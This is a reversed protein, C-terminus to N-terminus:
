KPPLSAAVEVGQSLWGALEEESAYGEPQVSVWGRMPRGNRDFPEVHPRDLAEEYRDPGVRIMVRDDMIGCAMNGNVFFAVGGFMRKETYPQMTELQARIRQAVDQNYAM